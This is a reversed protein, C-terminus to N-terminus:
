KVIEEYYDQVPGEFSEPAKKKMADLIEKRYAEPAQFRDADPIEVREQGDFHSGDGGRRGGARMPLPFGSGGRGSRAQQRAQEMGQRLHDLHEQARREAALAEGIRRQDLDGAAQRMSQRAQEMTMMSDDDFIPAQEGIAEAQQRLNEMREALREQMQALSDLKQQQSQSLRGRESFMQELLEKVEELPPVSKRASDLWAELDGASGIGFRQAYSRERELGQVLSFAFALSSAASELAADFDRAMLAHELAESREVAGRHDDGALRPLDNEPLAALAERARRVKQLMEDVPDRGQSAFREQLRRIQEQRLRETEEALERQRAELEGLEREFEQLDEALKQLAPDNELQSDATEGFAETLADMQMALKQMEALAGELDGEQVKKEVEDLQGLLDREQALARQAELNLHEDQIGRSLEAMQQMMEHIRQRLRSLERLIAQKAEDTPAEQFSELLRTLEARGEALERSLAEIELLRQRDLLSELYLVGRELEAQEDAEVLDLQRLYVDRGQTVRPSRARTERTHQAKRGLQTTVNQLAAFLEPPALDDKAFAATVDRLMGLATTVQEDAKRGAEVRAEGEVKRPGERPEIRDGLAVIMQEWAEEAQALLRRRHEAESFIKLVQTSSQGWKPGSVADNDQARVFYTVTEGPRLDLTALDWSFSKAVRRPADAPSGLSLTQEETPGVKYVLELRSIGFDDSAEYRIEVTDRETVVLEAIPAEIRVTPSADDLVTIPIEPGRALVRGREDDFRFAYRTSSQLRITGRLLRGGEVELPMAAGDIEVYAKAVPRDARTEIRAETGRLASLEGATGEVTRPSLGTYAPYHYTISVDGTIPEAKRAPGPEPVAVGMLRGFAQPWMAMGLLFAAATGLAVRSSLVLPRRDVAAELLPGGIRLSVEEVHALALTRSHPFASDELAVELELASTLGKAEPFSEELRRALAKPAAARIRRLAVVVAIVAGAAIALLAATRVGPGWGQAMGWTAFMLLLLAGSAWAFFATGAETRVLRKRTRRLLGQLSERPSRPSIGEIM